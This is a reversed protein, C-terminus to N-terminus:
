LVECELLGYTLYDDDQCGWIEYSV